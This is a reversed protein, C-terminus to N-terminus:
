TISRGLDTGQTVTYDIPEIFQSLIYLLCVSCIMHLQMSRSYGGGLLWVCHLNFIKRFVFMFQDTTAFYTKSVNNFLFIDSFSKSIFLTHCISLESALLCSFEKRNAANGLYVVQETSYISPRLIM